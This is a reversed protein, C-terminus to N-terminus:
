RPKWKKVRDFYYLVIIYEFRELMNLTGRYQDLLEITAKVEPKLRGHRPAGTNQDYPTKFYGIPKFCISESDAHSECDRPLIM